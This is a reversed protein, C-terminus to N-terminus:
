EESTYSQDEWIQDIAEGTTNTPLFQVFLQYFYTSFQTNSTYGVVLWLIKANDPSISHSTVTYTWPSQFSNYESQVEAMPFQIDSSQVQGQTNVQYIASNSHFSVSGDTANNIGTLGSLGSGHFVLQSSGGSVSAERIDEDAHDPNPYTGYFLKTGDSSWAFEGSIDDTSSVNQLTTTLLNYAYLSDSSTGNTRGTFAVQDSQPSWKVPSSIVMNTTIQRPTASSGPQVDVIYIGNQSNGSGYTANTAVWLGDPSWITNAESQAGDLVSRPSSHDRPSVQLETASGSQVVSAVNESDPSIQDNSTYSDTAQRVTLPSQANTATFFAQGSSATSYSSFGITFYHAASDNLPAHSPSLANTSAPKKVQVSLPPLTTTDTFDNPLSASEPDISSTTGPHNLNTSADDAANLLMPQYLPTIILSLVIIFANIQHLRKRTM